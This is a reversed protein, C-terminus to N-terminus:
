GKKARSAQFAAKSAQFEVERERLRALRRREREGGTVAAGGIALAVIAVFPGIVPIFLLVFFIVLLGTLSRGHSFM